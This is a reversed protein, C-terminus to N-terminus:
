NRQGVMRKLSVPDLLKISRGQVQILGEEQLRSFVRSVTELKLGIYSGIEARTLRLTYETSSYGRRRYRDALNLLFVALREEARMSGLMLMAGQDRMMERSMFQHLSHQMMPVTRALNEIESFPLACVDGEELAIAEVTHRDTGVGDYGIIEGLMHYGVIQERGDEALVTTKFSGMRIAYLARFPDGARYLTENKKFRNRHLVLKDLQETEGVSLGVPLCLERLTCSQCHVRLAHISFVQAPKAVTAVHALPEDSSEVVVPIAPAVPSM